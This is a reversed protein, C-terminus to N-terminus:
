VTYDIKNGNRAMMDAVIMDSEDIEESDGTDEGSGSLNIRRSRTKVKSSQEADEATDKSDQDNTGYRKEAVSVEVADVKIGQQEFQEKLQVLQNEVATKVAENQTTFEATLTGQKESLHVNVTGLNEPHLRIDLTTTEPKMQVKMYDAIQDFISQTQEANASSSATQSASNVAATENATRGLYDTFLSTQGNVANQSQDQQTGDQKGSSNGLLSNQENGSDTEANQVAQTVTTFSKQGSQEDVTVKIEIQKGESGSTKNVYDKMGSLQAMQQTDDLGAQTQSINQDGTSIGNTMQANRLDDEASKLMDKLQDVSIGSEESIDNLIQEADDKLTNLNGCLNEDTLLSTSDDNGSLMTVLKSMNGPDFLSEATMGNDSLTQSIQDTTVGMLEALMEMLEQAGASILDKTDEIDDAEDAAGAADTDDKVNNESTDTTKRTDNKGSLTTKHDDRVNANGSETRNGSDDTNSVKGSDDTRNRSGNSSISDTQSQQRSDTKHALSSVTGARSDTRTSQSTNLTTRNGTYSQTGAATGIQRMITGFSDDTNNTASILSLSDATIKGYLLSASNVTTSAM